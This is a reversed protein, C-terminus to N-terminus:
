ALREGDHESDGLGASVDEGVHVISQTRVEAWAKARQEQASAREARALARRQKSEKWRRIREKQLAREPDAVVSGQNRLRALEDEIRLREEAAAPSESPPDQDEPWFGLERMRELVLWPDAQVVL